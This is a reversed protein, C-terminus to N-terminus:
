RWPNDGGSTCSQDERSQTADARSLHCQSEGFPVHDPSCPTNSADRDGSDSASLDFDVPTGFRQILEIPAGIDGIMIEGCAARGVSTLMGRKLGVLSVTLDAIVCDRCAVGTDADLGSPLDVSVIAASQCRMANCMALLTQTESRIPGTFGTGLLADLVIHPKAFADPLDNWVREPHDPDLIAAPINSRQAVTLNTLADGRVRDIAGALILGVRCGRNTLHRAAAFGDGGNNGTGAFVLVTPKSGRPVVRDMCAEAISRAANEMLVISPMGYQESALRDINRCDERTLM